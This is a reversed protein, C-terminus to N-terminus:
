QSSEQAAAVLGQFLNRFVRSVEERREPHWQVGIVWRHRPSEVGEIIGDKLSYASVLLDPAKQALTFGQHHYSNVKMFGAVGLVAMMRAGPPVFVEHMVPVSPDKARHGPLDQVLTGGMAVNLAQMGRCIGFLPMDRRLAERILPLEVADRSPRSRVNAAPDATQGYQEPDVDAGGTLLVGQVSDLAEGIDFPSAMKFPVPEGDVDEIAALYPAPPEESTHTVAIRPRPM